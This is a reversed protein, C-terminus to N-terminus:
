FLGLVAGAVYIVVAIIFIIVWAKGHARAFSYAGFVIGLLLAIDKILRLVDFLRGSVEVGVVPLLNDIFILLAALILTIYCCLRIFDRRAEGETRQRKAM